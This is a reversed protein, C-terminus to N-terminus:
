KLFRIMFFVKIRRLIKGIKYDVKDKQRVTVQVITFFMYGSFDLQKSEFCQEFINHLM